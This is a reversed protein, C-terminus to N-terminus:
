PLIRMFRFVVRRWLKANRNAEQKLVNAIDWAQAHAENAPVERNDAANGCTCMM